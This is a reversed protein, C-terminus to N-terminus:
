VFEISGDRRGANAMRDMVLVALAIWGLGVAAELAAAQLIAGVPAQDLALRIAQLGHTIPLFRVVFQVFEPWYSIPVSVGCFARAVLILGSMVLIRVEPQRMVLSGMLLSLSYTSTCTLVVLPVVLLASPWPLALGFATGLVLFTVLSTMVGAPLWISTRGIIAPVLSAPAIVLLPYTGIGRDQTVMPVTWSATLAGVAVANGIMLYQEHYPSDFLRAYLSFLAAQSLMQVTWGGLWTKWNWYFTFESIGVTIGFRFQVLTNM